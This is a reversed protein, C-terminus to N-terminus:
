FKDYPFSELLLKLNVVPMPEGGMKFAEELSYAVRFNKRGTGYYYDKYKLINEKSTIRLFQAPIGFAEAVIIGHLSGSIVFKAGLIKKVVVMCDETPLVLNPFKEYAHIENLNPIVIYELTPNAKLEPFLLPMLLAPDGYVEPCSIGKALLFDRTLPGRVARVDLHTYKNMKLPIKGNLGSGWVVDNNQAFHLISGLALLHQKCRPIQQLPRQIIREVIKPSLADGFNSGKAPTFYVLSVKQEAKLFGFTLFIFFFFIIEKAKMM